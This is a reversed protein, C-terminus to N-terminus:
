MPNRPCLINRFLLTFSLMFLFAVSLVLLLAVGLVGFLTVSNILFFALSLMLLYTFCLCLGFSIIYCSVLTLKNMFFLAKINWMHFVAFNNLFRNGLMSILLFTLSNSFLLALRYNFFLALSNCLTLTASSILLHAISNSLLDACCYRLCHARNDISLFLAPIFRTLFTPVLGLSNTIIHRRLLAMIHWLFLAM